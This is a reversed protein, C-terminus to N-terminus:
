PARPHKDPNKRPPLQQFMNKLNRSKRHHHIQKCTRATKGCVELPYTTSCKRTGQEKPGQGAKHAPPRENHVSVCMFFFDKGCFFIYM